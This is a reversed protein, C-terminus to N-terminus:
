NALLGEIISFLTKALLDKQRAFRRGKRIYLQHVEVHDLELPNPLKGYYGLRIRCGICTFHPRHLNLGCLPQCALAFRPKRDRMRAIIGQPKWVTEILMSGDPRQWLM